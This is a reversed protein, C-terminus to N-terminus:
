SGKEACLRSGKMLVTMDTEPRNRYGAHLLGGARRGPGVRQLPPSTGPSVPTLMSTGGGVGVSTWGSAQGEM